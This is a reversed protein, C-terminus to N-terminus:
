ILCTHHALNQEDVGLGVQYLPSPEAKASSTRGCNVVASRMRATVFPSVDFKM